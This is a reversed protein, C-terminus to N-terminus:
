REVTQLVLDQETAKQLQALRESSVVLSDFPNLAEVELAFVQFEEDQEEQNPLYARSLHAAIYMQSGPKYQADLNYKQLRLLM